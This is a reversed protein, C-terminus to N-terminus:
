ISLMLTQETSPLLRMLDPQPLSMYRYLWVHDERRNGYLRQAQASLLNWSGLSLASQPGPPDLKNVQNSLKGTPRTELAGQTKDYIHEDVTSSPDVWM